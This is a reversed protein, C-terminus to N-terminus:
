TWFILKKIFFILINVVISHLKQDGFRFEVVNIVDTLNMALPLDDQDLILDHDIKDFIEHVDM